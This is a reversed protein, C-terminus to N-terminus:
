IGSIESTLLSIGCLGGSSVSKNSQKSENLYCQIQYKLFHSISRKILFNLLEKLCHTSQFGCGSGVDRTKAPIWCSPYPMAQLLVMWEGKGEDSASDYFLFDWITTSFFPHFLFCLLFPNILKLTLIPKMVKRQIESSLTDPWCSLERINMFSFKM